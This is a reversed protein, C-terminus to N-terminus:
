YRRRNNRHRYYEEVNSRSDFSLIGLTPIISFMFVYLLNELKFGFVFGYGAFCLLFSIIIAIIKAKWSM